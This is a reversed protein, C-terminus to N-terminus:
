QLEGRKAAQYRRNMEVREAYSVRTLDYYGWALSILFGIFIFALYFRDDYIRKRAEQMGM